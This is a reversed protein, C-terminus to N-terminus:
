STGPSFPQEVVEVSQGPEISGLAEVVEPMMPIHTTLRNNRARLILVAIPRSSLNQQHKINSDGTLLVDFKADTARDLLEGNLLDSWGLEVVTRAEHGPLYHKLRWDLNHDILIRV